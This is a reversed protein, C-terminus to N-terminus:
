PKRGASENPAYTPCNTGTLELTQVATVMCAYPLLAQVEPTVEWQCKGYDKVRRRWHKCTGCCKM